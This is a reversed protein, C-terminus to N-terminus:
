TQYLRDLFKANYLWIELFDVKRNIREGRIGDRDRKTTEKDDWQGERERYKNKMSLYVGECIVFLSYYYICMIIQSIYKNAIQYM